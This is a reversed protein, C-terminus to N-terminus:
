EEKLYQYAFRPSGDAVHVIGCRVFGHKTLLHQMTLNNEHTDARINDHQAKCFEVCQAFTGKLTGDSGVRHITVYPEDSTWDGDEIVGYTPDEGAVLAFAAHPLGDEGCIVYLEERQIDAELTERPPNNNGWQSPNGHERMYARAAEYIRLIVPMDGMVAKRIVM